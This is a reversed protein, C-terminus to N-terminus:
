SVIVHIGTPTELTSQGHSVRKTTIADQITEGSDKLYKIMNQSRLDSIRIALLRDKSYGVMKSFAENAMLIKLDADILVQALPNREFM